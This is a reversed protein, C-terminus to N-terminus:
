LLGMQVSLQLDVSWELFYPKYELVLGAVVHATDV